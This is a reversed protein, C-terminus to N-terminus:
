RIKKLQNITDKATNHLIGIGGCFIWERINMERDDILINAKKNRGDRAFHKKHDAYTIYVKQPDIGFHKKLWIKKDDTPQEPDVNRPIATLIYPDFRKIFDWLEHADPMPDLRSFIDVPLQSFCYKTSGTYEIAFKSFNALVGDVDCYIQRTYGSHNAVIRQLATILSSM